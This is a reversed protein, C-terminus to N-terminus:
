RPTNIRKQATIIQKDGILLFDHERFLPRQQDIIGYRDPLTDALLDFRHAPVIVVADSGSRLFNLVQDTEKGTWEAVHGHSYFVINPTNHTLTGIRAKGGAHAHAQQVLYPLANARGLWSAVPGIILTTYVLATVTFCHVAALHNQRALLFCAVCGFLPVVGVLASPTADTIGFFTTTIIAGASVVGGFALSALGLVFWRAHPWQERSAADVGVAAVLLAAAPYAPMIYNPLKTAALSFGVIWVVMWVLLLGHISRPMASKNGRWLRWAVLVVSFPLFCSWPFFGILLTVPHYWIGGGHNEMAAAARGINHIFFFGRTWQGNTYVDVLLYWPLSVLLTLLTITGLRLTTCTRLAGTVANQMFQKLQFQQQTTRDGIILFWVWPFLVALPGIFGIPGKCLVALGLLCGILCARPITLRSTQTTNLVPVVQEAALLIAWTCLATLISDPTAAHSEIGVLICSIYALSAIIGTPTNFWQVGARYLALATLFAAIASPLRASFESVGFALYCLAMSWHMLVPKDVALTDNYMPVIWNGTSVMAEAIAAFRPEDEDWLATAPFGLALFAIAVASVVFIPRSYHHM